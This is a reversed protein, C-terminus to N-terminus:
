GYQAHIFVQYVGEGIDIVKNPDCFAAWAIYNFHYELERFWGSGEIFCPRDVSLPIVTTSHVITHIPILVVRFIPEKYWLRASYM